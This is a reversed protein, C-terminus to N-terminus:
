LEYSSKNPFKNDFIDVLMKKTKYFNSINKGDNLCLMKIKKNNIINDVHKISEDDLTFGKGIKKVNKPSFQGKCLQWNKFIYQNVDNYNRLKSSSVMDLYDYELDWVEQLTSKLLPQPLHHYQFGPFENIDTSLYFLATRLLNDKYSFDFWKKLNDKIISKKKFHKNILMTNNKLVNLFVDDGTYYIDKKLVAMDCPLSDIFFDSYKTKNILYFDDNFYIFKESLGKIRHINLEIPHSSFTPLYKSPIYDKHNIIVLNPHAINLWHPLHGWTIFYIKGLWPANYEVGRFWYKLLEWDRYREDGIDCEIQSRDYKKFEAKWKPDNGDVWPIVIDLKNM